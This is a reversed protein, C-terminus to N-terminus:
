HSGLCTRRGRRPELSVVIQFPLKESGAIFGFLLSQSLRLPVFRLRLTAIRRM